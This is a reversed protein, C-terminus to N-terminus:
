SGESTPKGYKKKSMAEQADDPSVATRSVFEESSDNFGNYREFDPTMNNKVTSTSVFLRQGNGVISKIYEIHDRMKNAM